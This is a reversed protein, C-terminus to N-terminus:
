DGGSHRREEAAAQRRLHRPIYIYAFVGLALGVVCVWIWWRDQHPLSDRVVLLVVLAVAWAVSGIAAPVRYDSELVEPEPQRPKAM